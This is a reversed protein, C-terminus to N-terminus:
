SAQKGGQARRYVAVALAGAMAAITMVLTGPEPVVAGAANTPVDGDTYNGGDIARGRAFRPRFDTTLFVVVSNGGTPMGATGFTFRYYPTLLPSATTTSLSDPAVGAGATFPTMLDLFPGVVGPVGDGPALDDTAPGLSPNGAGVAGLGGAENFLDGVVYGGAGFSGAQILLRSLETDGLLQDTNVLQYFYVFRETGTAVGVTNTAPSAVTLGLDTIWNSRNRYVTFNILGDATPKLLGGDDFITGSNGIHTVQFGAQAVQVTTVAVVLGLCFQLLGNRTM